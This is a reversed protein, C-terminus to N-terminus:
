RVLGSGPSFISVSAHDGFEENNPALNCCLPLPTYVPVKRLETDEKVQM